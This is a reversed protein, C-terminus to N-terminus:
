PVAAPRHRPPMPTRTERLEAEHEVGNNDVYIVKLSRLILGDPINVTLEVTEGPVAKEKDATVYEIDNITVTLLKALLAEGDADLAIGYEGDDSSFNAATGYGRLGSTFVGPNIMTIGISAADTLEGTVNIKANQALFLNIDNNDAIVPSGSLTVSSSSTVYVGAGSGSEASNGTITGGTMTFEGNVYVGGTTLGNKTAINGSITGGTMTFEGFVYVGAGNNAANGSITGGTMTFSCGYNVYVGGGMSGAISGADNGAITGGNMTFSGDDVYVGSGTPSSGGTILGGSVSVTNETDLEFYTNSATPESDELTLFAGSRVTIVRSTREANIVKGNLDLTVTKDVVISFGSNDFGTQEESGINTLLKVVADEAEAPVADLADKLTIYPTTVGGVTLEAVAWRAYLDLKNGDDFVLEAPAKETGPEYSTGSGDAATNWEVFAYGDREFFDSAALTISETGEAFKVEESTDMDDGAHYIVTYGPTGLYLQGEANKGVSYSENNSFFRSLDNNATDSSDTFIGTGQAMTIGVSAAGTLEGTIYIKANNNLYLNNKVDDAIVPSGSLNISSNVQVNKGYRLAGNGTITGGTMTFEGNVCVGGGTGTRGTVENGSITGGNMTFSGQVYVGGGNGTSKNGSITGGNMIFSGQVYVGGGTAATNNSITGGNMTFSCGSEVYVGNGTTSSGGTILGAATPDSDELTLSAGESVTIVRRSTREANIVKGNLDLTVTKDVVIPFGSNGFGTQEESDINTLLKVVADEAEEPVADLANKLTIYPTTVGGVTLETVADTWRAQLTIDVTIPTDFDFVSTDIEGTDPDVSFWGYFVHKEWSPDAPRSVPQGQEVTKETIIEDNSMFTVVPQKVSNLEMDSFRTIYVTVVGTENDYGIDGARPFIEIVNGADDKHVIQVPEFGTYLSVKIMTEESEDTQDLMDNGVEVGSVAAVVNGEEDLATVTVVPKLRFVAKEQNEEEVFTVPIVNVTVQLEIQVAGSIAGAATEQDIPNGDGDTLDLDDGGEIAANIISQVAGTEAGTDLNVNSVESNEVIAAATEDSIGLAGIDDPSLTIDSNSDAVSTTVWRAYFMVNGSSGAPIAPEEETNAVLEQYEEDLFWGVFTYSGTDDSKSPVALIIDESVTTYVTPNLNTVGDEGDAANVYTITFQEAATFNYGEVATYAVPVCGDCLDASPSTVFLPSNDPTIHILDDSAETFEGDFRGGSINITGGDANVDGSIIGGTVTVKGDGAEVFLGVSAEITGGSIETVAYEATYIGFGNANITGGNFYVTGNNHNYFGSSSESDTNIVGGNVEITGSDSNEFGDWASNITGGNMTVTGSGAHEIASVNEGSIEIIGSSFIVNAENQVCIGKANVASLKGTGREDSDELTFTGGNINLVNQGDASIVHGNLDLTLTKDIEQTEISMM